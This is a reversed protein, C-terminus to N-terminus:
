NCLLSKLKLFNRLKRNFIQLKISIRSVMLMLKFRLLVTLMGAPLPFFLAFCQLSPHEFFCSNRVIVQHQVHRQLKLREFVASCDISSSCIRDQLARHRVASGLYYNHNEKLEVDISVQFLIVLFASFRFPNDRSKALVLSLEILVSIGGAFTRLSFNLAYFMKM